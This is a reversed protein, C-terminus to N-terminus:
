GHLIIKIHIIFIKVKRVKLKEQKWKSGRLRYYVKKTKSKINFVKYLNLFKM